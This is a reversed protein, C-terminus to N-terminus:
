RNNCDDEHNRDRHYECAHQPYPYSGHHGRFLLGIHNYHTLELAPVPVVIVDIHDCFSRGVFFQTYIVDTEVKDRGVPGIPGVALVTDSINVSFCYTVLCENRKM